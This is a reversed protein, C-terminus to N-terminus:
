SHKPATPSTISYTKIDLQQDVLRRTANARLSPFDEDDVAADGGIDDNYKADSAYGAYANAAWAQGSKSQWILEAAERDTKTKDDDPLLGLNLTLRSEDEFLHRQRLDLGNGRFAVRKPTILMDSQPRQNWYFPASFSVDDGDTSNSETKLNPWLFGTLRREDVPFGVVPLWVVPVGGARLTVNRAFGRGTERNLELFSSGM